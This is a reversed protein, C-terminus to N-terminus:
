YLDIKRPVTSGWELSAPNFRANLLWFHILAPPFCLPVQYEMQIRM